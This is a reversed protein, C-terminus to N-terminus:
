ASLVRHRTVQNISRSRAVLSEMWATDTM